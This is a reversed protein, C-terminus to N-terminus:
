SFCTLNTKVDGGKTTNDDLWDSILKVHRNMVMEAYAPWTEKQFTLRAKIITIDTQKSTSGKSESEELSISSSYIFVQVEKALDITSQAFLNKTQRTDKRSTAAKAMEELSKRISDKSQSEIGEYLDVITKIANGWDREGRHYDDRSSENLFFFPAKMIRVVYDEFAKEQKQREEKPDEPKSLPNFGAAIRAMDMVTTCGTAPNSKFTELLQNYQFVSLSQGTSPLRSSFIKDQELANELGSGTVMAGSVVTPPEIGSMGSFSFFTSEERQANAPDNMTCWYNVKELEEPITIM